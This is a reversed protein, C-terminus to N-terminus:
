DKWEPIAKPMMYGSVNLEGVTKIKQLPKEEETPVIERDRGESLFAYFDLIRCVARGEFQIGRIM